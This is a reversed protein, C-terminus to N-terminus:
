DFTVHTFQGSRAWQRCDLNVLALRALTEKDDSLLDMILGMIETPLKMLHCASSQAQGDMVRSLDLALQIANKEKGFHDRNGSGLITDFM